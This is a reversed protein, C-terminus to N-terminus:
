TADKTPTPVARPRMMPPRSTSTSPRVSRVVLRDVDIDTSGGSGGAGGTGGPGPAAGASAGSGAAGAAGSPEDDMDFDDGLLTACGSLLPILALWRVMTKM